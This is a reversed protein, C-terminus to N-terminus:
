GIVGDVNIIVKNVPEGTMQEVTYKVREIINNGVTQMNVGYDIMIHINITLGDDDRVVSVGKAPNDKKILESLTDMTNKSAMNKVGYIESAAAGAIQEIVENSIDVKGLSTIQPM